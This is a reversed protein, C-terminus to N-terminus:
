FAIHIVNDDDVMDLEFTPSHIELCMIYCEIAAFQKILCKLGRCFFM